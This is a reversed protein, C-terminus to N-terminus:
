PAIDTQLVPTRPVTLYAIVSDTSVILVPTDEPLAILAKNLLDALARAEARLSRMRSWLSDPTLSPDMYDSTTFLVSAARAVALQATIAALLGEQGAPLRYEGTMLPHLDIEPSPTYM